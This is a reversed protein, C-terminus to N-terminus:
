GGRRRASTSRRCARPAALDAQVTEVDAGPASLENAADTIAADEAIIV